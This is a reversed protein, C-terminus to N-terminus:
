YGFEEPNAKMLERLADQRSMGGVLKGEASRGGLGSRVTQGGRGKRTVYEAGFNQRIEAVADRIENRDQRGDEQALAAMVQPTFLKAIGEEGEEEAAAIAKYANARSCGHGQSIAEALDDESITGEEHDDDHHKSMDDTEEEEDEDEDDTEVTEEPAADPDKNPFGSAWVERLSALFAPDAPSGAKEWAEALKAEISELADDPIHYRAPGDAKATPKFFTRREGNLELTVSEDGKNFAVEKAGKAMWQNFLVLEKSASKMLTVRAGAQAPEDVTSIENLGFRRMINKRRKAM